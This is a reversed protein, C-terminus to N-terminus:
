RQAFTGCGIASIIQKIAVPWFLESGIDHTMHVYARRAREAPATRGASSLVNNLSAAISWFYFRGINCKIYVNALTRCMRAGGTESRAHQQACISFCVSTSAIRKVFPIECICPFTHVRQTGVCTSGAMDMHPPVESRSHKVFYQDLRNRQFKTSFWVKVHMLGTFKSM